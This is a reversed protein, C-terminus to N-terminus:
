HGNVLSYFLGRNKILDQPAGFEVLVGKKLCAIKDYNIITNIRHAITLVTCHKFKEKIIEQIIADTKYDISATAEDM